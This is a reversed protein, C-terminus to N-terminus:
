FNIGEESHLRRNGPRTYVAQVVSINRTAFAAECYSLYYNWKRIFADDFGLALVEDVRENFRVGWERLTRAYSSGLDDLGHLFLEGNRQLVENVRGVSLLLSGPFIHKQIFDTGRKLQAHGQDPVTIMQFAILGDPSLLEDCKSCWIELHEDGVAFAEGFQRLLVLGGEGLDRAPEFAHDHDVPPVGSM